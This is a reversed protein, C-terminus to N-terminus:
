CIRSIAAEAVQEQSHDAMATVLADLSGTNERVDVKLGRKYLAEVVAGNFAAICSKGALHRAVDDGLLEFFGEVEAADTFAIYDPPNGILEHGWHAEWSATSYTCVVLPTVHSPLHYVGSELLKDEPSSRVWILPLSEGPDRRAIRCTLTPFDLPEIVEDAKIGRQLLAAVTSHGCALIKVRSLSRMDLSHTLLGDLFCGVEFDGTFLCLAKGKFAELCETWQAADDVRKRTITPYPIPEAGEKRLLECFRTTSPAPRTVLIRKGTLGGLRGSAVNTRCRVAEGIVILAPPTLGRRTCEADLRMLPAEVSRQTGTSAGQVVMAPTEPALGSRLLQSVLQDLKALGMYIVLTGGPLTAVQDWPVPTSVSEAGHGTALFIWSSSHRNTLSFGSMAAAASAATVGPITVVPIGANALYDAEEGSRGFISPDGGKLRVVKLGRRALAALLENIKSQPLSHKGARKGVYHREVGEPLAAILEMPILADYAVADCHQLLDYGLRTILGPHGPGAGVLFVTGPAASNDAMDLGREYTALAARSFNRNGGIGGM